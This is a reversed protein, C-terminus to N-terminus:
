QREKSVGMVKVTYGNTSYMENLKKAASSDDVAKVSKTYIEHSTSNRGSCTILSNTMRKFVFTYTILNEDVPQVVPAVKIESSTTIRRRPKM